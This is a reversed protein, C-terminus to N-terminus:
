KGMEKQENGEVLLLKSYCLIASYIFKSCLILKYYFTVMIYYIYQIFQYIQLSSTNFM